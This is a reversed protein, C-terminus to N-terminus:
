IVEVNLIHEELMKMQSKNWVLMRSFNEEIWYMWKEIRDKLMKITTIKFKRDSSQLTIVIEL